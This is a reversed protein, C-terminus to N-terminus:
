CFSLLLKKSNSYAFSDEKIVENMIHRNIKRISGWPINKWLNKKNSWPILAVLIKPHIVLWIERDGHILCQWDKDWIVYWKDPLIFSRDINKEILAICLGWKNIINTFRPFNLSNMLLSNAQEYTIAWFEKIDDHFKKRYSKKCPHRVHQICFYQTLTEMEEETCRYNDSYKLINERIKWMKNEIEWFYKETNEWWEKKYYPLFDDYHHFSIKGSQADFQHLEKKANSFKRLILQALYHQKPLKM